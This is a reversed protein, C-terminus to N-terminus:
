ENRVLASVGVKNEGVVSGDTSNQVLVLIQSGECCLPM